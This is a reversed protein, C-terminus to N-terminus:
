VGCHAGLSSIKVNLASLRGDISSLKEELKLGESRAVEVQGKSIRPSKGGNSSERDAAQDGSARDKYSMVAIKVDELLSEMRTLRREMDDERGQRERKVACDESEAGGPAQVTGNNVNAMSVTLLKSAADLGPLALAASAGPLCLSGGAGDTARALFARCLM